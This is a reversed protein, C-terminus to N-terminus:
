CEIFIFIQDIPKTWVRRKWLIQPLLKCCWTGLLQVLLKAFKPHIQGYSQVFYCWIQSNESIVANKKIWLVAYFESILIQWFWKQWCASVLQAFWCVSNWIFRRVIKTYHCLVRSNQPHTGFNWLEFTAHFKLFIFRRFFPQLM